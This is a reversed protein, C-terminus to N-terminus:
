MSISLEKHLIKKIKKVINQVEINLQSAQSSITKKFNEDEIGKLNIMVNYLAAEAAAAATLGAVGADSLSNRNGKETVM